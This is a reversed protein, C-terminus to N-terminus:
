AAVKPAGRVRPATAGAVAAAWLVVVAAGVILRAEWRLNNRCVYMLWRM